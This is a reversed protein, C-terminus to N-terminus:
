YKYNGQQDKELKAMQITDEVKVSNGFETPIYMDQGHNITQDSIQNEGNKDVPLTDTNDM